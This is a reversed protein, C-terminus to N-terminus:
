KDVATSATVTESFVFIHQKKKQNNSTNSLMASM